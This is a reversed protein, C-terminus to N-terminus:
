HIKERYFLYINLIDPNAYSNFIITKFHELGINKDEENKIKWEM